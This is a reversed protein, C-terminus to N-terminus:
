RRASSFKQLTKMRRFRLMPRERRRFPQHSNEARNNLWRGVEQDDANSIENLAATYSRLGDAVVARPQGHGKMARKILKLAAAKDRTKSAFSELIEGGHDVARWPLAARQQDECLGRRSAMELRYSAAHSRRAEQPDRRRVDARVLEVVAEGDRLLHRDRARGVSRRCEAAVTSIKVHMMVVLRIVEPSSDFCRFPNKM